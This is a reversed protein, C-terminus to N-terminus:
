YLSVQDELILNTITEINELWHEVVQAVKRAHDTVRHADIEISAIQPRDIPEGIASLLKVSVDHLGEIQEYIDKAMMMALVNYIKGVHTRPNKGAAAELSMQRGPSILGNVRNGRGVQGDDGMEASLGLVTLYLGREDRANPDDLTNIRIGPSGDLHAVLHDLIARKLGFYDDVSGVHRDIFALAITFHMQGALRHGMIKFDDGAAPFKGRFEASKLLRSIALVGNELRSYPAYGCGFSTDNALPLRGGRAFVEKLNASGEKIETAIEFSALDCRVSKRLAGRAADIVTSVIDISPDGNTARGCILIKIPECCEGGGFRPVSQGAVLLGKDLNHHLVSGYIRRYALSLERSAAECVADALTDPHGIGKHECMEIECQEIPRCSSPHVFINRATM